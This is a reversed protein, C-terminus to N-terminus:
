DASAESRPEGYGAEVWRLRAIEQAREEIEHQVLAPDGRAKRLQERKLLLSVSVYQTARLVLTALLMQFSRTTTITLRREPATDKRAWGWVDDEVHMEAFGPNTRVLLEFVDRIHPNSPVGPYHDVKRSLGVDLM